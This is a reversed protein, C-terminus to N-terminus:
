EKPYKMNGIIFLAMSIKFNLEMSKQTGPWRPLNIQSPKPKLNGPHLYKIGNKDTEFPHDPM